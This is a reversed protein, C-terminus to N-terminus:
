PLSELKRVSEFLIGRSGSNSSLGHKYDDRFEQAAEAVAILAVIRNRMAAILCVNADAEQVNGGRVKYVIAKWEGTFCKGCVTRLVSDITWEGKTARAELAKLQDLKM